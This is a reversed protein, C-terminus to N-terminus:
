AAKLGLNGIKLKLEQCSEQVRIISQSVSEVRVQYWRALRERRTSQQNMPPRDMEFEMEEM